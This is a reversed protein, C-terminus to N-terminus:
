DQDGAKYVTRPLENLLYWYLGLHRVVDIFKVFDVPKVIYSNVGIDYCQNIDSDDDSTTLIVVPIHRTRADSKLRQLVEIGSLKPLKLDLLVVKPFATIKRDAYPGECFFFDLAEEGDRLVQVKNALKHKDFARLALEVDHPNDEILVIEVTEDKM